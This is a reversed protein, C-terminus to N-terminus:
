EAAQLPHFRRRERECSELQGEVGALGGESQIKGQPILTLAQSCTRAIPVTRTDSNLIAARTYAGICVDEPFDACVGIRRRSM